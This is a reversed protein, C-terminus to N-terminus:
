PGLDLSPLSGALLPVVALLGFAPLVCMVLPFLLQVPLRRAREEAHRRRLMRADEAVRELAPGMPSGYRAAATLASVLPRAADGLPRLSTLADGLREGLDVRRVVERLAPGVPDDARAGVAEVAQHVSLGAGVALRFLDVVDPLVRRVALEARRRHSRRVLAPAAVCAGGLVLGVVPNWVVGVTLGVVVAAGAAADAEADTPRGFRRRLPRGVRVTLDRVAAVTGAGARAPATGAAPGATAGTTRELRREVRFRRAADVGASVLVAAAVLAGVLLAM